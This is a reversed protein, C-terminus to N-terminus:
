TKVEETFIRKSNLQDQLDGLKCYEMKICFYEGWEFTQFYSVLFPCDKSIIMGIEIENKIKKSISDGEPSDKKGLLMMKLVVEGENEENDDIAVFTLGSSGQALLRKIM